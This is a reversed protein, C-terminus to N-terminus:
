PRDRPLPRGGQRSPRGLRHPSGGDRVCGAPEHRRRRDRSPPRTRCGPQARCCRARGSGAPTRQQRAGSRPPPRRGCRGPGRRPLPWVRDCGRCRCWWWRDPWPAPPPGPRRAARGPRTRRAPRRRPRGRPPERCRSAAPRPRGLVRPQFADVALHLIRDAAIRGANKGIRAVPREHGAHRPGHRGLGLHPYVLREGFDTGNVLRVQDLLHGVRELPARLDDRQREAGVAPMVDRQQAELDHLLPQAAM